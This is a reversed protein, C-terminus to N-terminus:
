TEIVAAVSGLNALWSSCAASDMGPVCHWIVIQRKDHIRVSPRCVPGRICVPLSAHSAGTGCWLTPRTSPRADLASKSRRHRQPKFRAFATVEHGRATAYELLYKGIGGTAGLVVLRM